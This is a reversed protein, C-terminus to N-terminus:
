LLAHARALMEELRSATRKFEKAHSEGGYLARPSAAVSHCLVIARREYFLDVLRMFRKAANRQGEDLM